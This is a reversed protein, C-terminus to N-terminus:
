FIKESIEERKKEFMKQVDQIIREDVFWSLDEAKLLRERIISASIHWCEWIFRDIIECQLNRNQYYRTDDRSWWYFVIDKFWSWFKTIILDELLDMWEDDTKVDAIWVISLDPFIKRILNKRETYNFPNVFSQPLGVSWLVLLINDIGHNKIMTDIIKQHWLHLPQFRWAYVWKM